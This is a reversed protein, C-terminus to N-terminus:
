NIKNKNYLGIVKKFDKFYCEVLSNVWNYFSLLIWKKFPKIEKILEEKKHSVINFDNLIKSDVNDYGTFLNVKNSDHIVCLWLRKNTVRIINKEYKWSGHRSRFWVSKLNEKKEILSIFPNYLQKKLGFRVISGTQLTYGDILDIALHDQYDFYSQIVNIYGKHLSDDNDLRSTICYKKDDLLKIKKVIEPLFNNMGDIFFPIFNSYSAQFEEVKRKYNEPTNIDFFVLWKFNQNTQNKVSNLCYNEFLEFRDKLWSESLVKENNKTITWSDNRLNFRTIIYHQYM